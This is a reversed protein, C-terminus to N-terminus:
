HQMFAKIFAPINPTGLGTVEDYGPTTLYSTDPGQVLADPDSDSPVSNMTVVRVRTPDGLYGRLVAMPYSPARVDHIPSGSGPPGVHMGYLAPNVFGIPKRHHDFRAQNVLALVGAFLPSSLSTGGISEECYETVDSLPKCGADLIPDGAITYTEGYLFGTYPDGVMSIDPTVRRPVELWLPELTGAETLITTYGSLSYPVNAQYDPALEFLSPGGGAGSYFTFPLAVGSTTIKKGNASVTADTLSARYTGWGWERKEGVGNLLALSTGGVATVYPSTAEWSGSAINNSAILDGDDGTSFLISMGEADAQMFFQDEAEIFDPPLAEGGFGYSNTVIDARRHDIFDYLPANGPDTCEIGGFLITAGPAMSHVAQVDLTEEEYWGQPGCPDNAPVDYLDDPVYQKFNKSNLLPLGHRKSYRNTDQVITPSAYVDVIAVKVGSGDESVLDAGYAQRMQQPNYACILWPLKAPYPGPATSLTATHDGWYTSCVESNINGAVPPPADPSRESETDSNADAAFHQTMRIHTSKRLASTDDLGAVYSVLGAIQAPLKPTEKNARLMKGKYAYVDQSVGFNAAIQAVTGSAEVYLGSDPTHGLTLGMQRLAHQVKAVDAANPSFQAHFEEPTLYEGYKSSNPDAQAKILEKLQSSNKFKLFVTIRVRQASPAAAVKTAKQVWLSVNKHGNASASAAHGPAVAALALGLVSPVLFRYRLTSKGM